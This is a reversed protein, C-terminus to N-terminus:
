PCDASRQMPESVLGNVFASWDAAAFRLVPGNPNKSDRVPIVGSHGYGAELCNGGNTSYSSKIWTM